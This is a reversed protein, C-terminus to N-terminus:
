FPVFISVSRGFLATIMYKYGRIVNEYTHSRTEVNGFIEATVEWPRDYYSRKSWERWSPLGICLLYNIPGLLLQQINHGYEHRVTDIYYSTAKREYETLFIGLFSGARNGGIRFVPIGRYASVKKSEIVKSEDNNFLNWEISEMDNKIDEDWISFLAVGSYSIVSFISQLIVGIIPSAIIVIIWFLILRKITIKKNKM